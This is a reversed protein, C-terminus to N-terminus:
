RKKASSKAASQPKRKRIRKTGAAKRSSPNNSVRLRQEYQSYKKGFEKRLMARVLGVHAFYVGNAVRSALVPPLSEMGAYREVTDSDEKLADPLRGQVLKKLAETSDIGFHLLEPLLDSYPEPEFKNEKPLISDLITALLDVNLPGKAEVSTLASIYSERADLVREFELDVTELIASVRNISRRVPFPVNSEHKYQLVHSAAAWMHQAVTRIQIEAKFQGVSALSPVSLWNKPLQILYHVSQYGFQSEGLREQTDEKQLVTFTKSILDCTKAVDRSFLLILRLGILDPLDTISELSLTKREIKEVISDLKKVRSEIPVGLTIKNTKLVEELEDRLSGNFREALPALAHYESQLQETSAPM